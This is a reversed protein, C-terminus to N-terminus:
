FGASLASVTSHFCLSIQDIAAPPAEPVAKRAADIDAKAADFKGAGIELYVREILANVHDPKLTIAARRREQRARAAALGQLIVV